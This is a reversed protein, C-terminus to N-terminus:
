FLWRRKGKQYKQVSETETELIPVEYEENQINFEVYRSEVKSSFAKKTFQYDSSSTLQNFNHKMFDYVHTRNTFYWNGSEDFECTMTCMKRHDKVLQLM